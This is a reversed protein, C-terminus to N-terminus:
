LEWSLSILTPAPFSTQLASRHSGSCFHAHPSPSCCINLHSISMLSPSQNQLLQPSLHLDVTPRKGQGSHGTHNLSHRSHKSDQIFYHAPPPFNPPSSRHWGGSILPLSFSSALAPARSCLQSLTKPPQVKLLPLTFTQLGDEQKEPQLRNSKGVSIANKTSLLHERTFVCNNLCSFWSFNNYWYM